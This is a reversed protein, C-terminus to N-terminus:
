KSPAPTATTDAAPTTTTGAEEKWVEGQPAKGNAPNSGQKSLIFSAVKQMDAPNIQAQWAIMGKEPVGYKLTKFINKIGGGHIWNADTLNPGVGGELNQGHCAVCNTKYITGGISVMAPDTLLTVSSEDVKNAQGALAMEIQKKAVAMENNYEEKQSPGSGGFHYYYMYGAAWVITIYFMNIWWPPLSNDLERIGDFDHHLVIENEREIPVPDEWYKKRLRTWFDDGQEAVFDEPLAVGTRLAELKILRNYMFKNVWLMYLIGIVVMASAAITLLWTMINNFEGASAAPAATAAEPTQSWLPASALLAAILIFYKGSKM